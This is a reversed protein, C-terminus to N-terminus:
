ILRASPNYRQHFSHFKCIFVFFAQTPRLGLCCVSISLLLSCRLAISIHDHCLKVNRLICCLKPDDAFVSELEILSKGAAQSFRNLKVGRKDLANLSYFGDIWHGTISSLLTDKIVLVKLSIDKFADDAIDVLPNEQINMVLLSRLKTFCFPSLYNIDNRELYLGHLSGYLTYDKQFGKCIIIIRSGSLDLIVLESLSSLNSYTPSYTHVSVISLYIVDQYPVKPTYTFREDRCVLARGLCKCGTPCGPFDRLEEDDGHPCHPYGDCVETPHICFEAGRM